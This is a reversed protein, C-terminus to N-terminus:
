EKGACQEDACNHTDNPIWKLYAQGGAKTPFAEFHLRYCFMTVHEKTDTFVDRYRIWGYLWLPRNALIDAVPVDFSETGTLVQPAYFSARGERDADTTIKGDSDYDPFDSPLKDVARNIWYRAKIGPTTGSNKIQAFVRAGTINGAPDALVLFDFRDVYVFARQVSTLAERSTENAKHTFYAYVVSTVAIVVTLFAIIANSHQECKQMFEWFKM